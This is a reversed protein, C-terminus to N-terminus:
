SNGNEIIGYQKYLWKVFEELVIAEDFDDINEKIYIDVGIKVKKLFDKDIM